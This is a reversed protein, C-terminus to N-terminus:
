WLYFSLGFTRAEPGDKVVATVIQGGGCGKVQQVGFDYGLVPDLDNIPYSVFKDANVYKKVDETLVSHTWVSQGAEKYYINASDGETILFEVTATSGKRIVKLNEVVKTTYGDPCVPAEPQHFPTSTEVVPPPPPPTVRKCDTNSEIKCGNKGPGEVFVCANDVCATHSKPQCDKDKKCSNEGKGTVKKCANDVCAYHYVPKECENDHQNNTAGVKNVLLLTASLLSAGVIASGAGLILRKYFTM